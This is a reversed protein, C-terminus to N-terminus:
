KTRTNGHWLMSMRQREWNFTGCKSLPRLISPMDPFLAVAGDVAGVAVAAAAVVVADVAGVVYAATHIAQCVSIPMTSSLSDLHCNSHMAFLHPLRNLHFHYMADFFLRLKTYYLNM